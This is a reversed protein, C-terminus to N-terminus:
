PVASGGACRAATGEEVPDADPVNEPPGQRPIDRPLARVGHVAHAGLNSRRRPDGGCDAFYDHGGAPPAGGAPLRASSAAPREVATEETGQPKVVSVAWKPTNRVKLQGGGYTRRSQVPGYCRALM